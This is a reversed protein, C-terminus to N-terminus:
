QGALSCRNEREAQGTFTRIGKVVYVPVAVAHCAVQSVLENMLDGCGEVVASLGFEDCSKCTTSYALGQRQSNM